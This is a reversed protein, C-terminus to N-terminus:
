GGNWLHLVAYARWPRWAGARQEADRPSVGGLAKRVGLDGAPFADPWGLGRMAIYQATWEGIGPLARLSTMTAEPDVGRHLPLGDTVARALAQLTRARARPMGLSAIDNESAAALSDAGPFRALTRGALTTAARVTIQQGLVGRLAM